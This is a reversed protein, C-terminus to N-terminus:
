YYAPPLAASNNSFHLVEYRRISGREVTVLATQPGDFPSPILIEAIDGVQYTDQSSILNIRDNNEGGGVSPTRM